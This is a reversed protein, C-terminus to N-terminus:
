RHLPAGRKRTASEAIVSAIRSFSGETRALYSVPPLVAVSPSLKCALKLLDMGVGIHGRCLHSLGSWYANEALARKARGHLQGAQPISRGENAFFKEFVTERQRFDRIKVSHYSISMNSGHQRRIGQMATTAAVSGTSSLRLWMELDGSHPLEPRYYGVQKQASTRVVVTSTGILNVTSRCMEEIFEGGTSIRWEAEQLREDGAPLSEEPSITVEHGHSFSVDAHQEMISVARALCGPALLDDASLLLFYDASAWDIGENYTAIHGQNTRHTLVEVRRDEAALQQAVESSSDPSADDIVLIRLDQLSQSLVSTVCDRLFHGYQYCPVVIDVSAM